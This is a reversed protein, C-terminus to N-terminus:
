SRYRNNPLGPGPTAARADRLRLWSRSCQRASARIHQTGAFGGHPTASAVLQQGAGPPRRITGSWLGSLTGARVGSVSICCIYEPSLEAIATRAGHQPNYPLIFDIGLILRGTNLINPASAEPSDRLAGRVPSCRTNISRVRTAAVPSAPANTNSAIEGRSRGSLVTIVKSRPMAMDSIM